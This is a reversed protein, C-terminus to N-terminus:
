HHPFYYLMVARVAIEAALAPPFDGIAKSTKEGIWDWVRKPLSKREPTPPEADIAAKLEVVDAEEFGQSRLYAALSGFDGQTVNITAHQTVNTSGSTLNGVNGTIYMNVIQDVREPPPRKGLGEGVDPSTKQIELVFALIKSRVTEIAGVILAKPVVQYAKMCQWELGYKGKYQRIHPLLDAPLTANLEGNGDLLHSYSGIPDRLDRRAMSARFKEPIAGLLIPVPGLTQNGYNSCFVGEIGVQGTRYEPLEEDDPYGFLEREVWRRFDLQDLKAALVLCRRLLEGIDSKPDIAGEIIDDLLTPRRPENDPV